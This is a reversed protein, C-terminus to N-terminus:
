EGGRERPRFLLRVPTGMFDFARRLRGELYREYEDPFLTPDNVFLVITPPHADPQSAYYIKGQHGVLNSPTLHSKEAQEIVRNLKGTPVRRGHADAAQLIQVFLEPIGWGRPASTVVIAAYGVFRMGSKVRDLMVRHPEPSNGVLDWKSIAVVLARGR